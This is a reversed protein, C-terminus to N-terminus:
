GHALTDPKAGHAMTAGYHPTVGHKALMVTAVAYAVALVAMLVTIVFAARKHALLAQVPLALAGPMATRRRKPALRFPHALM